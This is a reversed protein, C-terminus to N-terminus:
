LTTESNLYTIRKKTTNLTVELLKLKLYTNSNAHVKIDLNHIHKNVKTELIKSERILQYIEEENTMEM